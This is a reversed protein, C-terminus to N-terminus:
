VVVKLLLYWSGAITNYGMAVSYDGSAISGSGESFSVM